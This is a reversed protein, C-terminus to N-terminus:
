GLFECAACKFVPTRKNGKVKWHHVVLTNNCCPCTMLGPNFKLMKEVVRMDDKLNVEMDRKKEEFVKFELSHKECTHHGFHMSDATSDCFNCKTM